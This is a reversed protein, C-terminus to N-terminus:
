PPRPGTPQGGPVARPAARRGTDAPGQAPSWGGPSGPQGPQSTGPAGAAPPRAPQGPRARRVPRPVGAGGPGASGPAPTPPAGPAAPGAGYAVGRPNSVYPDDGTGGAARPGTSYPDPGPAVAARPGTGYPDAGRRDAIEQQLTRSSSRRGPRGGRGSAAQHGGAGHVRGRAAAVPVGGEAGVPQNRRPRLQRLSRAVPRPSTIEGDMARTPPGILDHVSRMVKPQRARDEGRFGTELERGDLSWAIVLLRGPAAVKGAHARELRAGRVAERPIWFASAGRDVRIGAENVTMYAGDKGSLGRASFWELWQGADTTGLYAGRLPAALVEGAEEPPALLEPLGEEQQAARRRWTQRLWGIVAVLLLVIGFVLLLRLGILGAGGDAAAVHATVLNM